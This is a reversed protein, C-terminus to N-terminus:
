RRGTRELAGSCTGRVPNERPTAAPARVVRPRPKELYGTDRMNAFGDVVCELSRDNKWNTGDREDPSRIREIPYASCGWRLNQEFPFILSSGHVRRSEIM